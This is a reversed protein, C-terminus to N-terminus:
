MACASSSLVTRVELKLEKNEQKLRVYEKFSASNMGEAQSSAALRLTDNNQRIMEVERQLSSISDMLEHIRQDRLRLLEQLRETQGRLGDVESRM